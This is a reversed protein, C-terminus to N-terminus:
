PLGLCNGTGQRVTHDSNAVLICLRRAADPRDALRYLSFPSAGVADRQTPYIQWPGKGPMGADEPAVTDFFFHVHRNSGGLRPEFGSTIFEVVYRRNAVTIGTIQAWDGTPTPTPTPQIAVAPLDIWSPSGDSGPAELVPALLGDAPRLAWLDSEDGDDLDGNGNSDLGRSFIIWAGDPSWAPDRAFAESLITPARGDAAGLMLRGFADAGGERLIFAIRDDVPSWAPQNEHADTIYLAQPQGPPLAVTLRYIDMDGNRESGYVLAAGDPSWSPWEDRGSNYTQQATAGPAGVFIEANSVGQTTATSVFALEITVLQQLRAPQAAKDGPRAALLKHGTPEWAAYEDWAGTSIFAQQSSGDANMTWIDYAGAVGSRNSTFAILSGSPSWRPIHDDFTNNTLRLTQGSAFDYRYIENGDAGTNRTFVLSGSFTPPVITPTPAPTPALAAEFGGSRTIFEDIVGDASAVGEENGSGVYFTGESKLLGMDWGGPSGGQDVREGDVYIALADSPQTADWAARIHLWQGAQWLPRRWTSATKYRVYDNDVLGLELDDGEELYMQPEGYVPGLVFLYHSVDDAAADYNPRYWFEVEGQQPDFNGAVPFALWKGQGGTHAPFIAGNGSKAPTFDAASLNTRGASGIAPSLIADLTDLTSYLLINEADAPPTVALTAALTAAPQTIVPTPAVTPSAQAVEGGDGRGRLLYLLVLLAVIVLAGAGALALLRNPNAAAPKTEPAPPITPKPAPSTPPPSPRRPQPTPPPPVVASPPEQPRPPPAVPLPAPAPPAMPHAAAQLDEVFATASPHRDAPAKAIARLIATSVAAPLDARVEAPAPPQKNLHGNIVQVTSGSFPVQGTLMHYAVIGLAYLDSAPGVEQRRDADIQEPAMYEVTGLVAGSRTLSTSHSLAKVLGFDTLVPWPRNQRPPKLLINAPKIDRHVLGQGHAYDLADALGALIDVTENLGLAGAQELRTQLAGGAVYEMALFLQGDLDGVEFITIINPHSLNAATQAEELFRQAMEPETAYYPHLLKLAVERKLTTDRALFVTAFGGRGVQRVIEYKGFSSNPDAM